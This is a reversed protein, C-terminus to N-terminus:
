FLDETFNLKEKLSAIKTRNRTSYFSFDILAVMVQMKREGFFIGELIKIFKQLNFNLLRGFVSRETQFGFM